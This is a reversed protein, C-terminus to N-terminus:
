IDNLKQELVSCVRIDGILIAISWQVKCRYSTGLIHCHKQQLKPGIRISSIILSVNRNLFYGAVIDDGEELNAYHAFFMCRDYAVMTVGYPVTINIALLFIPVRV